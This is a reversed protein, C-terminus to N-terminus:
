WDSSDLGGAALRARVEIRASITARRALKRYLDVLIRRHQALM